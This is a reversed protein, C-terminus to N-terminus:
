TLGTDARAKGTAAPTGVRRRLLVEGLLVYLYSLKDAFAITSKM